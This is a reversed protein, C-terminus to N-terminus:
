RQAARHAEKKLIPGTPIGTLVEAGRGTLLVTNSIFDDGVGAGMLWSLIHFSTGTRIELDM